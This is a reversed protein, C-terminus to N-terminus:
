MPYAPDSFDLLIFSSPMGAHAGVRFPIIRLTVNPESAIKILHTLQTRMVDPGGVQWHLAAEDVIAWLKFSEAIVEGAQGRSGSGERRLIM